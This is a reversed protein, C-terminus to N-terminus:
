GVSRRVGRAARDCRRRDARYLDAADAQHDEVLGEEVRLAALESGPSCRLDSRRSQALNSPHRRATRPTTKIYQTIFCM